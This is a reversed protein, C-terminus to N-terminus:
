VLERPRYLELRSHWPKGDQHSPGMLVRGRQHRSRGYAITLRRHEYVNSSMSSFRGTAILYYQSRDGNTTLYIDRVGKTGVTSALIPEGGNLFTFSSASNGNSLYQQVQPKADSFTSILYGVHSTAQRTNLGTPSAVVGLAASAATIISTLAHMNPYHAPRPRLRINWDGSSFILTIHFGIYEAMCFSDSVIAKYLILVPASAYITAKTLTIISRSSEDRLPERPIQM